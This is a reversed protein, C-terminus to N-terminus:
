VEYYHMISKLLPKQLHGLGNRLRPSFTSKKNKKRPTTHFFHQQLHPGIMSRFREPCMGPCTALVFMQKKTLLPDREALCILFKHIILSSPLNPNCSTKNPDHPHTRSTTKDQTLCLYNHLQTCM